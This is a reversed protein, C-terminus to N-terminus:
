YCNVTIFVSLGLICDLSFRLNLRINVFLDGPEFFLEAESRLFLFFFFFFFSKVIGPQPIILITIIRSDQPFVCRTLIEEFGFM